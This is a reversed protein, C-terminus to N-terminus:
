IHILSLDFSVNRVANTKVYDTEFTVSLNRVNLLTM